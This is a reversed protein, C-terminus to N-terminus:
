FSTAFLCSILFIERSKLNEVSFGLIKGGCGKKSGDRFLSEKKETPFKKEKVLEKLIDSKYVIHQEKLYAIRLGEAMTLDKHKVSKWNM